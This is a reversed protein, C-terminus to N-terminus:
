GLLWLFTLRLNYIYLQHDFSSVEEGYEGETFTQGTINGEVSGELPMIVVLQNEQVFGLVSIQLDLRYPTVGWTKIEYVDSFIRDESGLHMAFDTHEPIVKSCYLFFSNSLNDMNLTIDTCISIDETPNVYRVEFTNNSCSFFLKSIKIALRCM